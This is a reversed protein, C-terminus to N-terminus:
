TEGGIQGGLRSAQQGTDSESTNGSLDLVGDRECLSYFFVRRSRCVPEARPPSLFTSKEDRLRKDGGGCRDVTPKQGEKTAQGGANGPSEIRQIGVTCYGVNVMKQPSIARRSSFAEGREVVLLLTDLRRMVM